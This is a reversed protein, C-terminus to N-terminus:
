RERIRKLSVPIFGILAVLEIYKMNLCTPYDYKTYVNLYSCLHISVSSRAWVRGQRRRKHQDFNAFPIMGEEDITEKAPGLKPHSIATVLVPAM